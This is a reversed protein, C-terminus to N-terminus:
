VSESQLIDTAFGWNGDTNPPTELTCQQHHVATLQVTDVLELIQTQHFTRLVVVFASQEVVSM